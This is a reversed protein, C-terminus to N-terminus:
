GGQRDLKYVQDLLLSKLRDLTIPYGAIPFYGARLLIKTVSSAAPSDEPLSLLSGGRSSYEAAKEDAEIKEV